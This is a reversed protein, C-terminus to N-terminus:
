NFPWIFPIIIIATISVAISVPLGCRFYDSPRYGGPGMVMLNTQYGVPTVFALSAALSIAIIFPRPNYGNLQAINIAIPLMIAAVANNSIMETLVVTLLYTVILLLTPNPAGGFSVSDTIGTAITQAAGSKYLALGLGLASAITILLQFDIARRAESLRLCRTVILACVALFGIVAPSKYGVNTGPLFSSIVMALLMGLVILSSMMLRNSRRPEYGEVPSVLYFDRSNRFHHLFDTRTQLLLTDGPQLVIKGIKTNIRVGNRHVALVAAGYLKRFSQDAITTRILPSTRSLVVETLHRQQRRELEYSDDAAPVLGPIKELDVITSVVGTFVLRDGERVIEERSVPTIVQGDRDIEILFLGRMNRLGAQEITQGILSCKALVKMEVLYERRQDGIRESDYQRNPLLFPGVFFLVGAGVIACPIGALGIEWLPMREIKSLSENQEFTLNSEDTKLGAQSQNLSVFETKAKEHYSVLQANVVLTTSTGILTCVGGLIALYSVPILMRSPSINRKRCWESVVPVMMAVLATNLVFASSPVLALILRLLGTRETKATGLLKAGIWDLVGCSRLAASVALLAGITLVAPNAFGSFAESPTIVNTITVAMLGGLFLLDIPAGRRTQLLVFVALTVVIAILQSPNTLIQELFNM